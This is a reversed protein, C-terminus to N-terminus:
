AEVRKFTRRALVFYAIATVIVAPVISEALGLLKTAFLIGFVAAGAILAFLLNRMTTSRRAKLSRATAIYDRTTFSAYIRGIASSGFSRARPIRKINQSM